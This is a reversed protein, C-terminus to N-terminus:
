NIIHPLIDDTYNDDYKVYETERNNLLWSEEIRDIFAFNTGKFHM